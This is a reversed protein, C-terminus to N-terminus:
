KCNKSIFDKSERVKKVRENDDMREVSGDEKHIIVRTTPELKALRQRHYDCEAEVVKRKEAAEKKRLAREDRLQQAYSPEQEEMTESPPEPATATHAPSKKLKVIEADVNSDPRNGFHVVGNEDVWRYVEEEAMVIASSLAITAFAIAILKTTIRM